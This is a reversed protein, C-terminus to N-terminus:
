PLDPEILEAARWGTAMAPANTSGSVMTPIISLDVVRLGEIGRVRCLPDVVSQADDGMRCTGVAHLGANGLRHIADLIEDDTEIDRGPLTEREVYDALPEQAFLRRTFRFLAIATRRDYDESLYNPSIRPPEMPDASTIQITGRSEPRIVYSACLAGPQREVEFGERAFDQSVHSLGLQGDPRGPGPETRVAGTVEFVATTLPGSGLLAYRLLSAVLGAGRYAANASGGRLRYQPRFVRHERLNQGVGPSAAKVEIGLSRLHEPDGIGSLQLLKPSNLAGASLIVTRALLDEERDGRRIRVGVARGDRIIVRLVEVDPEVRLNPKKSASHLFAHAASQRRGRWITRPTYGIAPGEVANLDEALPLGLREASQLMADLVPRGRQEISVKLKGGSGRMPSGGLQHDEMALYAAKLHDWNWGPCGLAEWADYDGPQGRVYIMGNISSSGGVMRGRIWYEPENHGGTKEAPYAWMTGPRTLVKAFGRPMTILPSQDTQGGELVLIQHRGSRSLRDALVCGASGAGVIIVDTESM